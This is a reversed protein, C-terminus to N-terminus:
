SFTNTFQCIPYADARKTPPTNKMIGTGSSMSSTPKMLANCINHYSIKQSMTGHSYQTSQSDDFACAVGPLSANERITTFSSPLRRPNM